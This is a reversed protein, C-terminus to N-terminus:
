CALSWGMSQMGFPETDIDLTEAYKPGYYVLLEQGPYVDRKLVFFLNSRYQVAIVTEEM